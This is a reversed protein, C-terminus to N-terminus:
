QLLADRLCYKLDWGHEGDFMDVIRKLFAREEESLNSVMKMSIQRLIEYERDENMQSIPKELYKESLFDSIWNECYEKFTSCNTEGNVKADHWDELVDNYTQELEYDEPLNYYREEIERWLDIFNDSTFGDNSFEDSYEGYNEFLVNKLCSNVIRKITNEDLNIKKAM